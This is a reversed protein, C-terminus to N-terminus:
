RRKLISVIKKNDLTLGRALSPKKIDRQSTSGIAVIEVRKLKKDKILSEARKIAKNKPLRVKLTQQKGKQTFFLNHSVIKKDKVINNFKPLTLRPTRPPSRPTKKVPPRRPTRPTRKAPPTRTTRPPSRPTRKTPPARPTRKAPTTRPTRKAPTTRPTRKAPRTRPTRKTAPARAPLRRVASVRLRNARLRLVPVNERLARRDLRSLKPTEVRTKTGLKKSLEKELAEVQAKTLKGAKAKKIKAALTKPPTFAEATVFDVKKGEIITTGVKKIRKVFDGPPLTVELERGGQYITSGIPKFKGKGSEVQWAILDNTESVTLKKGTKLKTEIKKLKKPFKAVKANQFILVQPRQTDVLKFNGTFFDKLTATPAKQIGLRSTRFGSAPDAYLSRELLTINSEVNKQLWKNVKAFQKKSLKTGNDFKSLIQKIAKPFAEEGPIPKRVIVKRKLWGTIQNAATNVATVEQGALAAQGKLSKAGSSVTQKKLIITPNKKFKPFKIGLKGKLFDASSNWIKTLKTNGGLTIQGAKLTRFKPSLRSLQAPAKAAGKLVTGPFLYATALGLTKAPNEKYAAKTSKFGQGVAAGVIIGTAIPNNKVFTTTDKITKTLKKIDNNLITIARTKGKVARKVLNRGYDFSGTVPDVFIEKLGQGVGKSFNKLDNFLPNKEGKQKRIVLSKGYNFPTSLTKKALNLQKKTLKKNQAGIDALYLSKEAPTLTQGTLAKNRVNEITGTKFEKLKIPTKLSDIVKKNFDQLRVLEKNYENLSATLPLPKFNGKITANQKQDKLLANVTLKFVATGGVTAGSTTREKDKKTLGKTIAQVDEIGFKKSDRKLSAYNNAANYVNLGFEKTLDERTKRRDKSKLIKNGLNEIFRAEDVVIKVARTTAPKNFNSLQESEVKEKQRASRGFSLGQQVTILEGRELRNVVKNLAKLESKFENKRDGSTNKVQKKVTKVRNEITKIRNNIEREVFTPNVKMRRRIVPDISNYQRKFNSLSGGFNNNNFKNDNDKAAKDVTVRNQRLSERQRADLRKTKTQFPDESTSNGRQINIRQERTLFKTRTNNVM